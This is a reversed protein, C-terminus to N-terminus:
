MIIIQIKIINVAPKKQQKVKGAFMLTETIEGEGKWELRVISPHHRPVALSARGVALACPYETEM